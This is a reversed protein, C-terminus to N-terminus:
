AARLTFSLINGEDGASELSVDRGLREMIRRVVIM